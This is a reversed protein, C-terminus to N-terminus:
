REVGTMRVAQGNSLEGQNCAVVEEEGTLERRVEAGGVTELLVLKVTKGNDAQIEVPMKVARGDKVLFVYSTGGQSFVASSPLLYATKFSRLILRMKGYQGPLLGLPETRKEQGAVAPFAPLKRSKLDANGTAKERAAFAAYEEASGNYLDVEVRMTRDHEPSVLSPSFRTVTGRIVLGNMQIVVETDRNVFAAFNDPVKMYLTVIDTRALTLLPETRATAANQVFSGPDVNRHTIVGDFPARVNALDLLAKAKDLDKRAVGVLAEKLSVDARAAALKGKAEELDAQAKGVAARAAASAAVSAEYYETREDLIDQTVAPSPGSALGKFRRLEKERFSRNADARAVDSERMKVMGQSADVSAAATAINAQALAMERERQVVVAEKQRVDEVLDPVDIQVLSDNANVRDGIDFIATKVPGAVRAMLDAQYYAEVYAPQEVSATFHPDRRPKVTTVAITSEGEPEQVPDQAPEAAPDEHVGAPSGARASSALLGDRNPGTSRWGLIVVGIVVLIV